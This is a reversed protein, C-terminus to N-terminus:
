PLCHGLSTGPATTGDTLNKGTRRTGQTSAVEIGSLKRSEEPSRTYQPRILMSPSPRRDNPDSRRHSPEASSSQSNQARDLVPMHRPLVARLVTSIATEGSRDVMASKSQAYCPSRRVLPAERDKGADVAGQRIRSPLPIVSAISPRCGFSAQGGRVGGEGKRGIQRCGRGRSHGTVSRLTISVGGPMSVGGACSEHRPSAATTVLAAIENEETMRCRQARSRLTEAVRCPEVRTRTWRGRERERGVDRRFNQRISIPRGSRRTRLRKKDRGPVPPVSNLAHWSCSFAAIVLQARRGLWNRLPSLFRLGQGARSLREQKPNVAAAPEVRRRAGGLPWTSFGASLFFSCRHSNGWM